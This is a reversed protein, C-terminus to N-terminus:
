ATFLVSVFLFTHCARFKTQNKMRLNMSQSFYEKFYFVVNPINSIFPGLSFHFDMTNLLSKVYKDADKTKPLIKDFVDSFDEKQHSSFWEATEPIRSPTM